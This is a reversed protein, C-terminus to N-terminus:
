LLNYRKLTRPIDALMIPKNHMDAWTAVTTLAKKSVRTSPDRKTLYNRYQDIEQMLLDADKVPRQLRGAVIGEARLLKHM